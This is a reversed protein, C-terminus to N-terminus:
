GAVPLPGPGEPPRFSLGSRTGTSRSGNRNTGSEGWAPAITFSRNILGADRELFKAPLRRRFPSVPPAMRVIPASWSVRPPPALPQPTGAPIGQHDIIQRAPQGTMTDPPRPRAFDVERFPCPLWRSERSLELKAESGLFLGFMPSSGPPLWHVAPSSGSCGMRVSGPGGCWWTGDM